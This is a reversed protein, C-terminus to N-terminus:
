KRLILTLVFTYAFKIECYMTKCRTTEIKIHLFFTQMKEFLTNFM